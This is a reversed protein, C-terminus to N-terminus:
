LIARLAAALARLQEVSPAADEHLLDDIPAALTSIASYGFMGATGSLRHVSYKLTEHSRYEVEAVSKEIIELDGATRALFRDRLAALPDANANM